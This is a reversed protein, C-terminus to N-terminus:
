VHAEESSAAQVSSLFEAITAYGDGLKHPYVGIPREAEPADYVLLAPVGKGFDSWKYKNTGFTPVIPTKAFVAWVMAAGVVEDVDADATDVIEYSHGCTDLSALMEEVHALGENQPLNLHPPSTESRFFRFHMAGSEKTPRMLPPVYERMIAAYEEPMSLYARGEDTDWRTRYPPHAMKYRSRVRRVFAGLAGALNNWGAGTGIAPALESSVLERESAAALMSLVNKMSKPSEEYARRLLEPTWDRDLEQSETGEVDNLELDALFRYVSILHKRPVSVQVLEDSVVASEEL